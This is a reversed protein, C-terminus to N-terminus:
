MGNSEVGRITRKGIEFNGPLVAGPRAVAVTAGKDFNWAGCIIQTPGTGSDVQCVRVKDAYPHPAIDLVEGVYVETWGVDLREVSETTLGLFDFAYSLEEIDTTPLEIFEHLWRLPVKM